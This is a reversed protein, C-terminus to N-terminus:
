SELVELKMGTNQSYVRVNVVCIANWPDEEQSEDDAKEDDLDSASGDVESDWSFDDDCVSSVESVDDLDRGGAEAFDTTVYAREPNIVISAPQKSSDGTPAPESVKPEVEEYGNDLGAPSPPGEKPDTKTSIVQEQKSEAPKGSEASSTRSEKPAKTKKLPPASDEKAKRLARKEDVKKDKEAKRRQDRLKQRRRKERKQNREKRMKDHSQKRSGTKSSKLTKEEADRLGAKSHISDFSKGVALLKEFLSKDGKKRVSEIVDEVTSSREYRRSSIKVRVTYMGPELEVEASCSRGSGNEQMSRLMYTDQEDRYLRFHLDYSYRGQFGRFYRDDPQISCNLKVDM